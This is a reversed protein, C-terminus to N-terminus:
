GKDDEEPGLQIVFGMDGEIGFEYRADFTTRHRGDKEQVYVEMNGLCERSVPCAKIIDELTM